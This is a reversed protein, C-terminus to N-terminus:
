LTITQPRVDQDHNAIAQICNDDLAQTKVWNLSQIADNKNVVLGPLIGHEWSKKAYGVDSALLLFPRADNHRKIRTACLGATHGPTHIFELTGDDFLDFSKGTPGIGTHELHFTSIHSKQWEHPLYRFKDKNATFWEEESVLINKANAVHELGDAHDSHLHSLIVYDIDSTQYGLQQLQEHVAQGPPLVVKNFPYHFSLNKLANTRNIDHWGTDILVIGKPHEILYASVPLEVQHKKIQIIRDM